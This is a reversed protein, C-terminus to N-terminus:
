APAVSLLGFGFGKAPGIGAFVTNRFAAPDTVELVGEFRVTLFWGGAGGKGNWLRGEPIIDMRFNPISKGDNEEWRGPIQFGGAGCKQLFWRTQDPETLLGVRKGALAPGLAVNQAAVRKTPNARLRFRLRQGARFQPDFPKCEPRDATYGAPLRSWDPERDSQVLVVPPARGSRDEDTRFLVRGIDEKPVRDFGVSLITRHMEYPSALDRRAIRDRMNLTLKSLFM